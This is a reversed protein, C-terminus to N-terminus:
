SIEKLTSMIKPMIVGAMGRIAVHAYIDMPTFEKNVILLRKGVRVALSPLSAAPYVTLSSGIIIMLDAAVVEDRAQEMVERPLDEGFLITNTKILM